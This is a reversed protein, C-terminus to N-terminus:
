SHQSCHRQQIGCCCDRCLYPLAFIRGIGSNGTWRTTKNGLVLLSDHKSRVYDLVMHIHLVKLLLILGMLPVFQYEDKPEKFNYMFDALTWKFTKRATQLLAAHVHPRISSLLNLNHVPVRSEVVTIQSRCEVYINTFKEYDRKRPKKFTTIGDDVSPIAHLLYKLYTLRYLICRRARDCIAHM